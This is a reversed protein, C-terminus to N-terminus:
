RRAERIEAQRAAELVQKVEDSPENDLTTAAMPSPTLPLTMTQDRDVLQYSM